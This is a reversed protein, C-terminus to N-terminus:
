QSELCWTSLEERITKSRTNKPTRNQESISNGSDNRKAVIRIQANQTNCLMSWIIYLTVHIQLNPVSSIFCFHFISFHEIQNRLLRVVISSTYHSSSPSYCSSSLINVINIEFFIITFECCLSLYTCLSHLLSISLCLNLTLSLSIIM